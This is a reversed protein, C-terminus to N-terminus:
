SPIRRNGNISIKGMRHMYSGLSSFFTGLISPNNQASFATDATIHPAISDMVSPVIGSSNLGIQKASFASGVTDLASGAANTSLVGSVGSAYTGFMSSGSLVQPDLFKSLENSYRNVRIRAGFSCSNIAQINM